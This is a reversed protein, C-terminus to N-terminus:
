GAFFRAFGKDTVRALIARYDDYHGGGARDPRLAPRDVRRLPM